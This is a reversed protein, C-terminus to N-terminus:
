KKKSRKRKANLKERAKKDEDNWAMAVDGCEAMRERLKRRCLSSHARAANNRKQEEEIRKRLVVVQTAVSVIQKSFGEDSYYESNMYTNVQNAIDLASQNGTRFVDVLVTPKNDFRGFQDTEAFGDIVRAVEGLHLRTGEDRTLLM